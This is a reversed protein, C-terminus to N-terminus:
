RANEGRALRAARNVSRRSDELIGIALPSDLLDWAALAKDRAVCALRMENRAISKSRGNDMRAVMGHVTDLRSAHRAIAQLVKM